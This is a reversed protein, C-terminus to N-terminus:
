KLLEKLLKIKAILPNGNRNPHSIFNDASIGASYHESEKTYYQWLFDYSYFKERCIKVIEEDLQDGTPLWTENNDKKRGQPIITAWITMEGNLGLSYVWDGYKKVIV